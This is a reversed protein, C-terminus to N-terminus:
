NLRTHELPGTIGANDDDNSMNSNNDRYNNSCKKSRNDGM